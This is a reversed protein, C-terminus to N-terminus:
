KEGQGHELEELLSIVRDGLEIKRDLRFELVPTYKLVVADAVERQIEHRIHNLKDMTERRQHEKGGFVSIYVQANRLDPSTKVETVSVLTNPAPRVNIKEIINAIERKLIENVRTIRDTKAM